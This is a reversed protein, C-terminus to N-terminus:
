IHKINEIGISQQLALSFGGIGAFTDLTKIKKM